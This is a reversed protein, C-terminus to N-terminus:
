ADEDCLIECARDYIDNKLQENDIHDYPVGREEMENEFYNGEISIDRIEGWKSNEPPLVQATIKGIFYGQKDVPLELDRERYDM